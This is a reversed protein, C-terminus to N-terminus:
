TRYVAFAAMILEVTLGTNASIRAAWAASTDCPEEYVLGGALNWFSTRNDYEWKEVSGTEPHPRLVECVPRRLLNQSFHCAQRIEEESLPRLDYSQRGIKGNPRRYQVHLHGATRAVQVERGPYFGTHWDGSFAPSDTSILIPQLWQDGPDCLYESGATDTAIVGVHADPTCLDHGVIRASIGAAQLDHHLWVALDFCNGGAGYTQRHERMEAVTRQRPAGGCHRHWWGKTFTEM